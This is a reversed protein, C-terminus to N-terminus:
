AFEVVEWRCAGTAELTTSSDLYVGFEKATMAMTGSGLTRTGVFSPFVVGNNGAIQLPGGTVGPLNGGSPNLTGTETSDSAVTGASGTSFSRVFTKATNVATISITGASLAEGRQILKVGGGAVAPIFQIVM